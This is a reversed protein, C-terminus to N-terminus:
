KINMGGALYKWLQRRQSNTVDVSKNKIKDCIFIKNFLLPEISSIEFTMNIKDYRKSLFFTDM